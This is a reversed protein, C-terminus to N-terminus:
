TGYASCSLITKLTSQFQRLTGPSAHLTPPLDNWVCPVSVAFSRAGYIITRTRPVLLDSHQQISIVAVLATLLRLACKQWILHHLEM